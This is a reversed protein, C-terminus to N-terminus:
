RVLFRASKERYNEITQDPENREHNDRDGQDTESEIKKRLRRLGALKEPDKQDKQPAGDGPEEGTEHDASEIEKVQERVFKWSAFFQDLYRCGVMKVRMM